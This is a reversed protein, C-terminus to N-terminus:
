INEIKNIDSNENAQIYLIGQKDPSKKKEDVLLKSYHIDRPYKEISSTNYKTRKLINIKQEMSQKKRNEEALGKLQAIEVDRQANIMKAQATLMDKSINNYPRQYPPQQYPPMNANNQFLRNKQINTNFM